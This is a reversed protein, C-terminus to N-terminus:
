FIPVEKLVEGDPSLKMLRYASTGGYINGKPGIAFGEFYEPWGGIKKLEFTISEDNKFDTIAGKRLGGSILKSGDASFVYGYHGFSETKFLSVQEAKFDMALNKNSSNAIRLGSKTASIVASSGPTAWTAARATEEGKGNMTIVQSSKEDHKQVFTDREIGRLDKPAKEKKETDTKEADTIAFIKSGDSLVGISGIKGKIKGKLTRKATGIKYVAFATTAKDGRGSSRAAAVISGSDRAVAITEADKVLKKRKFTKSDFFSLMGSSDHLVLTKGSKSLILEYPNLKIWIRKKVSLDEADIVYLVRNDGAAYITKGDPSVTIAALGGKPIGAQAVATLTSTCAAVLLTTAWRRSNKM